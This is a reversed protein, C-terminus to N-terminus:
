ATNGLHTITGIAQHGQRELLLRRAHHIYLTLSARIFSCPTSTTQLAPTPRVPVNMAISQACRSSFSFPLTRAAGCGGVKCGTDTCGGVNYRSGQLRSGQLRSAHVTSGQLRRGQLSSGPLRCGQLRSGQLRSGELRGGSTFTMALMSTSRWHRTALPRVGM